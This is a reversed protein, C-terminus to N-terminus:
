RIGSGNKGVCPESLLRAADAAEVMYTHVTTAAGNIGFGFTVRKELM